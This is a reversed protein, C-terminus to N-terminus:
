WQVRKVRNDMQFERLLRCLNAPVNGVKKGAVDEALQDNYRKHAPNKPYTIARHLNDPIQEKPPFMLMICHPDIDPISDDNEMILPIDKHAGVKTRHIGSVVSQIVVQVASAM